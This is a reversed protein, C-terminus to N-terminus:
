DAYRRQLYWIGGGLLPPLLALLLMGGVVMAITTNAVGAVRIYDNTLGFSGNSLYREFDAPIYLIGWCLRLNDAVLFWGVMGYLVREFKSDTFGHELARWFAITAFTYEGLHGGLLFLVERAETFAFVPYSATIGIALPMLLRHGRWRYVLYGLAGWILLTFGLYQGQHIAVAHGDLRIAPYGPMGFFWGVTCHGMEHVLASLFWGMTAGFPLLFFLPVLAMGLLAPQVAKSLPELESTITPRGAEWAADAEQKARFPSWPVGAESEQPPDQGVFQPGGELEDPAAVDEAPQPKPAAQQIVAGCMGCVLADGPNAYNCSPCQLSAQASPM